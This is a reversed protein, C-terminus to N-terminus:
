RFKGNGAFDGQPIHISYEVNRKLIESQFNGNKTEQAVVRVAFLSLIVAFLLKAKM